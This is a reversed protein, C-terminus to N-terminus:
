TWGQDYLTQAPGDGQRRDCVLMEDVRLLRAVSAIFRV